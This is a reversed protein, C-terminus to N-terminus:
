ARRRRIQKGAGSAAAAAAAFAPQTDCPVCTGSIGEFTQSVTIEKLKAKAKQKEKKRKSKYDPQVAVFLVATDQQWQLSALRSSVFFHCTKSGSLCTLQAHGFRVPLSPVLAPM